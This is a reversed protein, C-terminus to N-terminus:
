VPEFREMSLCIYFYLKKSFSRAKENFFIYTLKWNSKTNLRLKKDFGALTCVFVFLQLFKKLFYFVPFVTWPIPSIVKGNGHCHGEKKNRLSIVQLWTGKRTDIEYVTKCGLSIKQARRWVKAGSFAKWFNTTPCSNYLM